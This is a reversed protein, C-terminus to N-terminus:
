KRYIEFFQMVHKRVLEMVEDETFLNPEKLFGNVMGGRTCLQHTRERRMEEAMKRNLIKREETLKKIREDHMQIDKEIDAATKKKTM